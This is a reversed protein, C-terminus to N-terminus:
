ESFYELQSQYSAQQKQQLNLSTASHIHFYDCANLTRLQVNSDYSSTSITNTSTLTSTVILQFNKNTSPNPHQQQSSKTPLTPHPQQLLTSFCLKATAVAGPEVWQFWLLQIEVRTRGFVCSLTVFVSLLLCFFILDNLTLILM